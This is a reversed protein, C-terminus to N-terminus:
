TGRAPPRIPVPVPVSRADAGGTYAPAARRPGSARHPPVSVFRAAPRRARAASDATQSGTGDASDASCRVTGGPFAPAEAPRFPLGDPPMGNGSHFRFNTLIARLFRSNRLFEQIIRLFFSFEHQLRKGKANYERVTSFDVAPLAFCFTRSEAESKKM